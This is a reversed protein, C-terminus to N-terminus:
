SMMLRIVLLNLISIFFLILRNLSKCEVVSNALENKCPVVLEGLM